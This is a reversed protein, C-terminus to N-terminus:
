LCAVGVVLGTGRDPRPPARGRCHLGARRKRALCRRDPTRGHISTRNTRIIARGHSSPPRLSTVGTRRREGSKVGIVPRPVPFSPASRRDNRRRARWKRWGNSRRMRAPWCFRTPPTWRRTRTRHVIMEDTRTDHIGVVSLGYEARVALDRLTEGRWQAPVVMEQVSLNRAMRVYNLVGQESIRSALNLASEREPFITEAAGMRVMVRAHDHSIVKVYVTDIGLDTLAMTSLISATLGGATSGPSGGITMFILTLVSTESEVRACDITNFGATRPTVSAFLGNVLREAVSLGALTNHWEFVTFAIGGGVLLLATTALVLRSHVSLRFRGEERREQRWVYLEEITLFGIGGLVILVMVVGLLPLNGQFNALSASFISFGANCFASVAHFISPWVAGSWGLQPGWCLYLLVAGILEAGLTFRVVTGTLRRADVNGTAGIAGGALAEHRLSLRRGLVVIILTTFSLIGLGGLQILLLVYAQGWTTFYTATDVVILGTVCVASTATFLADIWDLPPGAYLGPLVQFGVTGAVILL